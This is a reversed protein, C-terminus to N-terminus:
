SVNLKGQRMLFAPSEPFLSLLFGSIITFGIMIGPTLGLGSFHGIIFAVLIGTNEGMIFTSGLAGRVSFYIIAFMKKDVLKFGFDYQNTGIM